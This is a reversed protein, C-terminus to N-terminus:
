GGVGPLSLNSTQSEIANTVPELMIKLLLSPRAETDITEVVEVEIETEEAPTADEAVEEAAPEETDEDMAAEAVEEEAEDADQAAETEAPAKSEEQTADDGDVPATGSCGTAVLSVALVCFLSMITRM